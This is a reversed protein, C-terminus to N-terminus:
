NGTLDVLENQQVSVIVSQCQNQFHIDLFNSIKTRVLHQMLLALSGILEKAQLELEFHPLGSAYLFHALQALIQGADLRDSALAFQADGGCGGEADDEVGGRCAAEISVLFVAALFLFDEWAVALFAIALLCADAPFFFAAVGLFFAAAFFLL